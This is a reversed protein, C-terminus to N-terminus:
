HRNKTQAGMFCWLKSYKVMYLFFLLKSNSNPTKVTYSIRIRIILVDCSSMIDWVKNSQSLAKLGTDPLKFTVKIRWKMVCCYEHVCMRKCSFSVVQECNEQSGYQVYLFRECWIWYRYFSSFSRVRRKHQKLRWCISQLTWKCKWCFTLSSM